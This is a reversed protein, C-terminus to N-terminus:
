ARLYPPTSSGNCALGTAVNALVVKGNAQALNSTGTADAVPLASGGSATALRVLLYQGPQLTGSLASIGNSAFNGTGSASAYQVSWGSVDVPNSSRNFLEVYDAGYVNGGGGYIQSIVIDSAASARCSM